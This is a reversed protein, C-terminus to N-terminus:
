VVWENPINYFYYEGPSNYQRPLPIRKLISTATINGGPPSVQGNGRYCPNSPNNRAFCQCIQIQQRDCFGSPPRTNYPDGEANTWGLRYQALSGANCMPYCGNRFEGSHTSEEIGLSFERDSVFPKNTNIGSNCCPIHGEWFDDVNNDDNSAPSETTTPTPTTTGTGGSVGEEVEIDINPTPFLILPPPALLPPIASPLQPAQYRAPPPPLPPPLIAPKPPSPPNPPKRRRPVTPANPANTVFEDCDCTDDPEQYNTRELIRRKLVEAIKQKAIEELNFKPASNQPTQSQLRPDTAM